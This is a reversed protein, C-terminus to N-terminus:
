EDSEMKRSCNAINLMLSLTTQLRGLRAQLSHMKPEVLPWRLRRLRSARRVEDKGDYDLYKDLERQIERFLEDCELVTDKAAQFAQKSFMDVGGDQSLLTGLETIVTSTRSLDRAIEKVHKNASLAVDTFTYITSSLKVGAAAIGIISAAISLPDAM